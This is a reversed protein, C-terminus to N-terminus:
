KGPIEARELLIRIKCRHGIPVPAKLKALDIDPLWELVQSFKPEQGFMKKSCEDVLAGAYSEVLERELAADEDGLVEAHKSDCLWEVLRSAPTQPASPCTSRPPAGAAPPTWPPAAAAGAAPLRPMKDLPSPYHAKQEPSLARWERLIGDLVAQWREPKGAADVLKRLRTINSTKLKSPRQELIRSAQESSIQESFFHKFGGSNQLLRITERESPIRAADRGAAEAAGEAM